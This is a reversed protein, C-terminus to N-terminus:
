HSGYKSMPYINAAYKLWESAAKYTDVSEDPVYIHVETGFTSCPNVGEGPLEAPETGEMIITLHAGQDIQYDAYPGIVKVTAPFTITTNGDPLLALADEEIATITFGLKGLNINGSASPYSVLSYEIKEAEDQKKRLLATGDSTAVLSPHNSDVEFHLKTSGWFAGGHLVEVNSGITISKLSPCRSFAGYGLLIMGTKPLTVQSLANSHIAPNYNNREDAGFTFRNNEDFEAPLELGSFDLNVETTGPINLAQALYSLNEKSVTGTLKLNGSPIKTDNKINSVDTSINWLTRYNGNVAPITLYIYDGRSSKQLSKSNTDAPIFDYFEVNTFASGATDYVPKRLSMTTGYHQTIEKSNVENNSDDYFKGEGADFTLTVPNRNYYIDITTSGDGNVIVQEIKDNTVTPTFGPINKAKAESLTNPITNVLTEREYTDETYRGAAVDNGDRDLDQLLHRVTYTAGWQISDFKSLMDSCGIFGFVATCVLSTAILKFLTKKM